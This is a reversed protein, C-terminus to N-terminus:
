LIEYCKYTFNVLIDIVEINSDLLGRKAANLACRPLKLHDYDVVLRVYFKGKKNRFFGSVLIYEFFLISLEYNRSTDKEFYNAAEYVISAM